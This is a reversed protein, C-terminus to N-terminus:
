SLCECSRLRHDKAKVLVQQKNKTMNILMNVIPFSIMELITFISKSTCKATNTVVEIGSVFDRKKKFKFLFNHKNWDVLVYNLKLFSFMAPHKYWFANM